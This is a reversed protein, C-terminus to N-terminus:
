CGPSLDEMNLAAPFFGNSHQCSSVIDNPTIIQLAQDILGEVYQLRQEGVRPPQVDPVRMHQKVNSKIKNWIIEIPNLMPSYPGLPLVILGPYEESCDELKSHCPANDCVLVVSDATVGEPLHSLM